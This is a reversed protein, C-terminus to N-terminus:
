DSTSDLSLLDDGKDKASRYRLPRSLKELADEAVLRRLCSRAHKTSVQLSEAVEAETKCVDSGKFLDKIKGEVFRRLWIDAQRQSVQLGAAVSVNTIPGNMREILQEVKAFLENAQGLALPYRGVDGLAAVPHAVVVM